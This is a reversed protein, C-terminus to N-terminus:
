DNDEVRESNIRIVNSKPPCHVLFTNFFLIKITNFNKTKYYLELSISRNDHETCIKPIDSRPLWYSCFLINLLQTNRTISHVHGFCLFFSFWGETTVGM